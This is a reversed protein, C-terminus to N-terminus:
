GRSARATATVSPLGTAALARDLEADFSAVSRDCRELDDPGLLPVIGGETVACVAALPGVAALVDPPADDRHHTVFPVECRDLFDRWASTRRFTGHTIDCLECHASGFRAGFWYRVEGVVTGDADYVGVLEIISSRSM